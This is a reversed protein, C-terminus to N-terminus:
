LFISYTINKLKCKYLSKGKGPKVFNFQVI